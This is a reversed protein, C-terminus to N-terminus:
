RALGSATSLEQTLMAGVKVLLVTLGVLLVVAALADLPRTLVFTPIM